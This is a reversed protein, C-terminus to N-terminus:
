GARGDQIGIVEQDGWVRWIAGIVRKGEGALIQQAEKGGDHTKGPAAGPDGEEESGNGLESM